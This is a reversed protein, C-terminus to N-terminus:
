GKRSEVILAREAIRRARMAAGAQLAARGSVSRAHSAPATASRVHRLQQPCPMGFDALLKGAPAPM